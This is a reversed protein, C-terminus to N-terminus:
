KTDIDKKEIAFNLAKVMKRAIHQKATENKNTLSGNFCLEESRDNYYGSAIDTLEWDYKEIIPRFMDLKYDALTILPKTTGLWEMSAKMLASGLGLGRYKDVMCITCIKKEEGDDKLCSMGIIEDPQEPNRIFLINREDTNITAPLTKEFYWEKHIPYDECIFDTIMYVDTALKYFDDENLVNIYDKLSEVKIKSM